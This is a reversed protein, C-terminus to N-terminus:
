SKTFHEGDSSIWINGDSDKFKENGEYVLTRGGETEVEEHYSMASPLRAGSGSGCSCLGIFKLIIYFSGANLLFEIIVIWFLAIFNGLVLGIFAFVPALELMKLSAKPSKKKLGFIVFVINLFVGILLAVVLCVFITQWDGEFRSPDKKLLASFLFFLGTIIGISVLPLVIRLVINKKKFPNYAFYTLYSFSFFIFSIGLWEVISMSAADFVILLPLIAFPIGLVLYVISVALMSKSAKEDSIDDVKAKIMCIITMVLYILGIVLGINVFGVILAPIYHWRRTPIKENDALVILIFSVLSLVFLVALGVVMLISYKDLLAVTDEGGLASPIFDKSNPYVFAFVVFQIALAIMNIVSFIKFGKNKM